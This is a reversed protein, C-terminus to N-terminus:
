FKKIIQSRIFKTLSRGISLLTFEPGYGNTVEELRRSLCNQERFDGM